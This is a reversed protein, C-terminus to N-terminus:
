TTYYYLNNKLVDFLESMPVNHTSQLEYVVAKTNFLIELIPIILAFSFLSFITSLLNFLVNLGVYKKYPPIFRKLLIIFRKM